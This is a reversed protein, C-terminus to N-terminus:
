RPAASRRVGRRDLEALAAKQARGDAVVWVVLGLLVAATVSYAAVIFGLHSIM